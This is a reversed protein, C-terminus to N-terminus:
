TGRTTRGIDIVPRCPAFTELSWLQNPLADASGLSAATKARTEVRVATQSASRYPM